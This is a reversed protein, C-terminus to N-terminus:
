AGILEAEPSAQAAQSNGESGLSFLLEDIEDAGLGARRCLERLKGASVYGAEFADIALRVLRNGPSENEPEKLEFPLRPLPEILERQGALLERVEGTIAGLNQLRYLAADYSVGFRRRLLEVDLATVARARAESRERATLAEEEDFVQLSRDTRGKGREALFQHVAGPPLLFTAAFANARVERFEARQEQRSVVSSEQWDAIAHCYEHAYSFRLRREHHARNVFTSIGDAQDHLTFGSISDPLDVEGVWIGQSELVRVLSPIPEDVLGLRSRESAALADGQRVGDYRSAMEPLEYLVGNIRQRTRGLVDELDAVDTRLEVCERVARARVPDGAIGVEARFLAQLASPMKAEFDRILFEAPDRGYLRALAILQLSNPARMGGEVQAIAGRTLGLGAAAAEQTFNAAERAIRLRRGLERADIDM